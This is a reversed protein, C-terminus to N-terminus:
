VYSTNCINARLNALHRAFLIYNTMNVEYYISSHNLDISNNNLINLNVEKIPKFSLEELDEKEEKEKKIEFKYKSISM